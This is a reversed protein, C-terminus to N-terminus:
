YKLSSAPIWGTGETTTVRIWGSSSTTDLIIVTNGANVSKFSASSTPTEYLYIKETIQVRTKSANDSSSARIVAAQIYGGGSVRLWGPANNVPEMTMSSGSITQGVQTSTSTYNYTPHAGSTYGKFSSEYIQGIGSSSSGGGPGAGPEIYSSHIYGTKNAVGNANNKTTNNPTIITVKYWKTSGNASYGTASEIVTLTTGHGQRYIISKSSSDKPDNRMNVNGNETDVLNVYGPSNNGVTGAMAPVAVAMLTLAMLVLAIIRKM